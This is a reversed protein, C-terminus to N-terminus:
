LDKEFKTCIVVVTGDHDTKMRRMSSFNLKDCGIGRYICVLCMSGSPRYETM